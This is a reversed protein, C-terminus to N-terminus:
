QSIIEVTAKACRDSLAQSMQGGGVSETILICAGFSVRKRQQQQTRQSSVAAAYESKVCESSPNLPFIVHMPILYLFLSLLIFCSVLISM